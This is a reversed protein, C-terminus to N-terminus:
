ESCEDSLKFESQMKDQVVRSSEGHSFGWMCLHEAVAALESVSQEHAVKETDMCKHWFILSKLLPSEKKKLWDQPLCNLIVPPTSFQGSVPLFGTRLSSSVQTYFGSAAELFLSLNAQM